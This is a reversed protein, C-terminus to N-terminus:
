DETGELQPRGRTTAVVSGHLLLTFVFLQAGAIALALGSVALHNEIADARHLKFDQSIYVNVLPIALAVGLVGIGFASLVSRTYPFLRLWRRKKRGTYDFLVQSVGGLFVFQLGVVFVALGLFQWNLSLTVPGLDVDSFSVPFTLLFGIVLLLAGPKLLFFDSGYVFMARLNIWAAAWPSFWGSRKHHSLRGERDKLFSVPVETTRLDM